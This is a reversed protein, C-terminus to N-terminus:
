ARFGRPSAKRLLREGKGLSRDDHGPLVVPTVTSWRDSTAVYQRLVWDSALLPELYAVVKGKWVLERGALHSQAWAVEKEKGPPAAILVRAIGESRDLRPNITPLPLFSFRARPRGSAGQQEEHGLVLSNVPGFPWAECAIAAAHRTWAAVDRARRTPELWLQGGSRPDRLRFAACPRPEIDTARAYAATAFAALPSVPHFTGGELRGLFQAHKNELASFTGPVPVRLVTGGRRGPLWREGEMNCGDRAADGVVQDVGWGLHTLSRAAAVLAEFHLDLGEIDRYVFHVVEGALRMVRVDKETRYDALNAEGGGSWSKAVKDGVNDPVFLRLPAAGPEAAPAVVEPAARIELWHLADIARSRLSPDVQRGVGSAVLAQFLRLPSPPWEPLGDDGRGHSYPQLFRVSIRLEAVM